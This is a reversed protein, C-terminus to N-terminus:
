RAGPMNDFNCRQERQVYRGHRRRTPPRRMGSGDHMQEICRM